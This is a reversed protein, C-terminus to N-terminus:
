HRAAEISEGSLGALPEGRWLALAAAVEGAAAVREGREGHQAAAALHRDFFTIDLQDPDVRLLYGADTSVLARGLDLLSRLRSVYTQVVHTVSPPPQMGWVTRVIRDVAVPRNPELLLMALVTQQKVGGLGIEVDGRRARLPGLLEYRLANGM